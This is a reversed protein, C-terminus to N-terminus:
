RQYGFGITPGYEEPDDATWVHVPRVSQRAIHWTWFDALVPLFKRLRQTLQEAADDDANPMWVADWLHVHNLVYERQEDVFRDEFWEELHSNDMASQKLLCGRFDVVVPLLVTPEAFEPLMSEFAHVCESRWERVAAMLDNAATM